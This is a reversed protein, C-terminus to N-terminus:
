FVCELHGNERILTIFPNSVVASDMDIKDNVNKCGNQQLCLLNTAKSLVATEQL